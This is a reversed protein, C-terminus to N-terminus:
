KKQFFVNYTIAYNQKTIGQTRVDIMMKRATTDFDISKIFLKTDWDLTVYYGQIFAVPNMFEYPVIESM